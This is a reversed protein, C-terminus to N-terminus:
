NFKPTIKQGGKVYDLGEVMIVDDRKLGGSLVYNHGSNGFIEIVRPEVTSSDSILYVMKRDQMEFTAKQPVLIVGSQPANLRVVGSSGSRLIGEPNRFNAKIQVSGTAMDVLGSALELDGELAYQTGNSLILNCKPMKAVKEKLSVGHMQAALDLMMREDMSFYASVSKDSSVTSLPEQSSPSVLTGERVVIRGIVGDVPSTITAYSLNIKANNYNSQAFQLQAKAAELNSNANELEYQSIIGKEVLPTLKRVELQANAVQAKAANVNAEAANCSQVLDRQDIVFLAEGKHVKSGESVCIKDLYGSVRSRIEVVQEGKIESAFDTFIIASSTDVKVCGYSPVEVVAQPAEGGCGFALVSLPLLLLKKM